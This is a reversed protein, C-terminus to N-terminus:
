GKLARLGGNRKPARGEPDSQTEELLGRKCYIKASLRKLEDVENQIVQFVTEGDAPPMQFLETKHVIKGRDFDLVKDNTPGTFYVKAYSPTVGPHRNADWTMLPVVTAAVDFM